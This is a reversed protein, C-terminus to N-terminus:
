DMHKSRNGSIDIGVEAMVKIAMSHVTGPRTGASHAEVRGPFLANTIGKAFQSRASNHTYIFLVRYNVNNHYCPM